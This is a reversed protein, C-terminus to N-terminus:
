NGMYTPGRPTPDQQLRWEKEKLYQLLPQPEMRMDTVAGCGIPSPRQYGHFLKERHDDASYVLPLAPQLQPSPSEMYVSPKYAMPNGWRDFVGFKSAEHDQFNGLNEPAYSHVPWIYSNGQGLNHNERYQRLWESSTMQRSPPHNNLYGQVSHGYDPPVYAASWNSTGLVQSAGYFNNAKGVGGSTTCNSFNSQIGSFWVADDPLLPASPTPPLYTPSLYNTTAYEHESSIISDRNESISLGSLSSPPMEEIPELSHKSGNGVGKERDYGLSGRNLVWGSLSPPGASIPIELSPHPATDKVLPEQHKFSVNCKFNTIGAHFALPDSEAQNQAILLSTARRLCEDSPGNEDGSDKLSMQDNMAVSSYLPASNYRTLPKFLIVEEEETAVSKGIVHPNSPTKLILEECEETAEYIHQNPEEVKLDSNAKESKKREPFENSEEMYFKRVLKDYFIWNGSDNSKEAIKMAANIIRHARCESGSEFSDIHEWPTSFDLLVHACAVPAFGRLEYDEWLSTSDPSTGEGWEVNLQNLLQIFVGFFYSIASRSKEDVGCTKAQDLMGVFWEVFVLVAPLLPCLELHSAKLCRDVLRGMFIITAAMAFQTWVLQETDNKDKSRGVQSGHVLYNEIIFIFISAVQLARFPGTRASDLCEYSELAAKLKTDDLAMLADLGRMASAFACPFEEM